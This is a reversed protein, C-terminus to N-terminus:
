EEDGEMDVVTGRASPMYAVAGLERYRLVRAELDKIEGVRFRSLPSRPDLGARDRYFAEIDQPIPQGKRRIMHLLAVDRTVFSRPVIECIGEETEDWTIGKEEPRGQSGEGGETVFGDGPLMPQGRDLLPFSTLLYAYEEASLGYLEAVMADIEARLEARKWSDREAANYTWPIGKSFAEEWIGSMEPTTCFLRAAAQCLAKRTEEPIDSFAPTPVAKVYVWNLNTSVRTRALADWVFSSLLVSLVIAEKLTDALLVPVGNGCLSAGPVLTCLMTRENTAGTVNCFACRIAEHQGAEAQSVFMRPEIRKEELGIERWKAKRGEGSVYAKQAHDFHHVLRGEYLPVYRQGAFIRSREEQKGVDGPHLFWRTGQGNLEGSREAYGRNRYYSEGAAMWYEGGPELTSPLDAVQGPGKLIPMWAGSSDRGPMVQTFGREKMWERSRFMWADATMHLENRYKVNWSGDKGAFRKHREHLQKILRVEAETKLDLLALTGPSFADILAHSLQIRREKAGGELIRGDRLMFAAEFGHDSPAQARTGVFISFKFRSDIHFAWKRYNEFGYLLDLTCEELLLRRLGTSGEGQWFTSPLVQGIRGRDRALGYGREIFFRYLDPDGGTRKGEVVVSQYCYDGVEGLYRVLHEIEQSYREWGAGLEPRLGQMQAILRDLSPGQTNAVEESFAGYYDRKAPKLKNWPPNGVVVDFGVRERKKGKEDFAMEPFELEWHFFRLLRPGYGEDRAERIARVLPEDAICELLNRRLTEGEPGGAMCAARLQEFLGSGNEYVYVGQADPKALFWQACWLDALLCHAKLKKDIDRRRQIKASAQEVTDAPRRVMEAVIGLIERMFPADMDFALSRQEPKAKGSRGKGQKKGPQSDEGEPRSEWAADKKGQRAVLAPVNLRSLWAGVLANGCKLHHDLFSLPKKASATHLWLAVKALEVAMPNVDVGYICREVVRRKWYALELPGNDHPAGQEIPECHLTLYWAIVDVAKVLFHASGMAPDVVKLSLVAEAGDGCASLLPELSRRVIHDVIADPTFYSGSAKKEGDQNRLVFPRGGAANLPVSDDRSLRLELLGEYVDGLDRVDLDSYPVATLLPSTFSGNVGARLYILSTLLAYVVDDRMHFLELRSHDERSFLGGNYAIVGYEGGKDILGFLDRLMKYGSSSETREHPSLKAVSQFIAETSAYKAYTTKAGNAERMPLLNMAEAKLAFLLRYLFVLSLERIEDLQKQSIKCPGGKEDVALGNGPHLLFGNAVISVAEHANERLIERVRRTEAESERALLDLYGGSTAAPGFLYLFLTLEARDEDTFKGNRTLLEEAFLVLDYRLHAEPKGTEMLRFCRGNTLVGWRKGSARLYSLVQEVDQSATPEKGGAMKKRGTKSAAFDDGPEDAGVGKGFRKVDVILLADACYTRADPMAENKLSRYVSQKKAFCVYDPIKKDGTSMDLMVPKPEAHYACVQELVCYVFGEAVAEQTKPLPKLHHPLGLHRTTAHDSFLGTQKPAPMTLSDKYRGWIEALAALRQDIDAPQIRPCPSKLPDAIRSFYSQTFLARLDIFPSM